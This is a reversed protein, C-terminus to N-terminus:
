RVRARSSSSVTIATLRRGTPRRLAACRGDPYAALLKASRVLRATLRKDGLPAGGFEMRAWRESDLGHGPVLVPAHDVFPVGLRRRWDPALPYIYVSKRTEAHRNHRDQRGRGASQGLYLFNAARLSVGEQPPEVFTEVLWPRYGYRAEFTGRWAGCSGGWFM